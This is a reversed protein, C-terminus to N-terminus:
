SIRKVRTKRAKDAALWVSGMAGHELRIGDGVAFRINPRSETQTWVQGNDLTFILLGAPGERLRVIKGSVTENQDPLYPATPNRKQAIDATMGFQDQKIKPLSSALEDFCALRQTRDSEAACRRLGDSIVDAAVCVSCSLLGILWFTRRCVGRMM